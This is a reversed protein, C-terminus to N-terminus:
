QPIRLRDGVRVRDPSALRDRNVEYIERWRGSSGLLANAISSLTEGEGVTHERLGPSAPSAVPAPPEAPAAATARPASGPLRLRDGVALRDPDVQPNLAAIERWRASDGLQRAAISSLTEGSAVLHEGGSGAAAPAPLGIEIVGLPPREGGVRPSVGSAVGRSEQLLPLPLSAFEDELEGSALSGDFEALGSPLSPPLPPLLRFGDGVVMQGLEGSRVGPIEGAPLRPAAAPEEVVMVAAAPPPALDHRPQLDAREAEAPAPSQWAYYTGTGAFALLLLTLLVRTGRHM